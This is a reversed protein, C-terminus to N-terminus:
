TTIRPMHKSSQSLARSAICSCFRSLIHVHILCIKNFIARIHMGLSVYIMSDASALLGFQPVCLGGAVPPLSTLWSLCACKSSAFQRPWPLNYMNPHDRVQGYGPKTFSSNTAYASICSMCQAIQNFNKCCRNKSM